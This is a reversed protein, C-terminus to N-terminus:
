IQELQSIEQETHVPALLSSHEEQLEPYKRCGAGEVEVHRSAQGTPYQLFVVLLIQMSHSIEHETQESPVLM